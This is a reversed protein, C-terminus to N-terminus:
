KELKDLIWNMCDTWGDVYASEMNEGIRQRVYIADKLDLAKARIAMLLKTKVDNDPMIAPTEGCKCTGCLPCSQKCTGCIICGHTPM